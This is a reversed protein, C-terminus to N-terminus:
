AWYRRARIRTRPQMVHVDLWVETVYRAPLAHVLVEHQWGYRASRLDLVTCAIRRARRAQRATM